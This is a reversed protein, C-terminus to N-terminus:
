VLMRADTFCRGHMSGRLFFVMEMGSDEMVKRQALRAVSRSGPIALSPTMGTV